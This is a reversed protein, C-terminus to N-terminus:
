LDHFYVKSVQELFNEIFNTQGILYNLTKNRTMYKFDYLISFLANIEPEHFDSVIMADIAKSLTDQIINRINEDQVIM